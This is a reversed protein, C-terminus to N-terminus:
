LHRKALDYTGLCSTMQTEPEWYQEEKRLEHTQLML